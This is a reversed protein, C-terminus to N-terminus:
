IHILSLDLANGSSKPWPTTDVDMKLKQASDDQMVGAPMAQIVDDEKMELKQATDDQMVRVGNYYFDVEQMGLNQSACYAKILKGLTTKNKIKFHVVSNKVSDTFHGQVRLNIFQDAFEAATTVEEANLNLPPPRAGTHPM